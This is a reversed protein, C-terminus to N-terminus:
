VKSILRHCSLLIAILAVAVSAMVSSLLSVLPIGYSNNKMDITLQHRLFFICLLVITAILFTYVRHNKLRQLMEHTFLERLIFGFWIYATAMPVVHLNWPLAFPLMQLLYGALLLCPLFYIGIRYNLVMNILNASVWLVTIFWFM